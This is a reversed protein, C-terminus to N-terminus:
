GGALLMIIIVCVIGALLLKSASFIMNEKSIKGLYGGLLVFVVGALAFSALYIDRATIEEVPFILYVAFPLLIIVAALFPSLGDVIATLYTTAIFARDIETGKLKRHLSRELSKLEGRREAAETLFAGWLGSIGVAVSTAMGISIVLGFDTLGAVYAGMVVGVMTLAGDFANMVFYRRLIGGAKSIKLYKKLNKVRRKIPSLNVM